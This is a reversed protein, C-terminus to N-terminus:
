AERLRRMTQARWGLEEHTKTPLAEEGVLRVPPPRRDPYGFLNEFTEFFASTHLIKAEVEPTLPHAHRRMADLPHPLHMGQPWKIVLRVEDRGDKMPVLYPVFPRLGRKWLHEYDLIAEASRDLAVGSWQQRHELNAAEVIPKGLFAPPSASVFCDGFAIAGRLYVQRRACRHMLGFTALCVAQVCDFAASRGGEENPQGVTAWVFITDSFQASELRPGHLLETSTSIIAPLEGLTERFLQEPNEAKMRARFGLIDLLAIARSATTPAAAM